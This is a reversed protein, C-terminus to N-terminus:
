AEDEPIEVYRRLIAVTEQIAIFLPTMSAGPDNAVCQKTDSNIEALKVAGVSAAAGTLRHFFRRQEDASLGGKNMWHALEKEMDKVFAVAVRRYGIEGIQQYIANDPSFEAAAFLGALSSHDGDDVVAAAPKELVVDDAVPLWYQLIINILKEVNIPKAIYANFGAAMAEKIDSDFSAASLAIIPLQTDTYQLRMARAASLGDMVPMQIDLFVLDFESHRARALAEKGDNVLTVALGFSSFLEQLLVRNYANDDAVLIKPARAWELRQQVIAVLIKVLGPEAEGGLVSIINKKGLAELLRSMTVPKQLVTIDAFEPSTAIESRDAALAMLIEPPRSYSKDDLYANIRRILALGEGGSLHKDVILLGFAEGAVASEVVAYYAEDSSYLAKTKCGWYGFMKELVECVRPNEDAILVNKPLKERLRGLEGSREAAVELTLEFSFNSGEALSSQVQLRSDMLELLHQTISLGLGSGGYQRTVSADAQVFPECLRDLEAEDLGVGTDSICFRVRASGSIREVLDVRITVFGKATFKVANGILNNLLQQIRLADGNLSLSSLEPAVESLLEIGKAEAEGSFLAVSHDVLPDIALENSELQLRGSEIRSLDLIDNILTLLNRAAASVLDLNRMLSEGDPKRRIIELLGMISTLPTRIEHSMNALFTSKYFNVKEVEEIEYQLQKNLALLKRDSTYVYAAVGVSFLLLVGLIPLRWLIAERSIQRLYDDSLYTQVYYTKEGGSLLGNLRGLTESDNSYKGSIDADARAILDMTHAKRSHGHDAISLGLLSSWAREANDTDILLNADSDLLRFVMGASTVQYIKEFISTLDINLVILGLRLGEEHRTPIVMRLTPQFPQVIKNLEVNLDIPSIYISEGTGSIAESYYYRSSKDQLVEASTFETGDRSARDLRAREMGTDDLWRIQSILSNNSTYKLLLAELSTRQFPESPTLLQQRIIALKIDFLVFGLLDVEHVLVSTNRDRIVDLNNLSRTYLNSKYHSYLIGTVIVSFLSLALFLFVVRLKLRQRTM